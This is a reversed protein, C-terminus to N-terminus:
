GELQEKLRGLRDGWLEKMSEAQKPSKLKFHQVTVACKNPGKSYFRAEFITTGDSWDMRISKNEHFVRAKLGKEALWRSRQRADKFAAYLKRASVNVTKSKSIEFGGPKEHLLRIGRAQEYGVTIQQKWWDPLKPYKRSLIAVIAAHDKKKAGQKDLIELWQDWIKGTAKKVAADSSGALKRAVPKAEEQSALKGAAKIYRNLKAARADRVDRIKIHRAGKGTGELLGDPDALSAGQNFLLNVHGRQPAVGTFTSKMAGDFSFGIVKWGPYVKAQAKPFLRAIKECLLEACEAVTEEYGSLFERPTM